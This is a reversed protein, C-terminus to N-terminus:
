IIKVFNRKGARIVSNPQPSVNQNTDSMVQEDIKVAGQEVLRRAHSKSPALGTEVLLSVIDLETSSLKTIAFTPIEEPVTRGQVTKEFHDKAFNAKEETQVMKVIEWALQKKTEMPNNQIKQEIDTLTYTPVLTALRFCPMIASDPLSMIQGFLQEPPNAINIANGATKGIKVGNSDALLPTTVALKDKGSISKILHRGVSMNFLQDFGGMEIDVDMAIADKTVLVPYLFEHLSIPKGDKLRQQFMDREIMQQVTFGMAFQLAEDLKMDKLWESNFKLQAPNEGDFKLITKVQDQYSQANERTQELTLPVRTKDKGSPDGITATFDGILFIVEHGLDQFMKLALLGVLHGIHLNASSPDFGQYLRLRQGSLLRKRLEDKNPIVENIRRYLFDDIVSADTIINAMDM